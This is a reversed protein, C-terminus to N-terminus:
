GVRLCKLMFLHNNWDSKEVYEYYRSTCRQWINWKKLNPLKAGDPLVEHATWPYVQNAFSICTRISNLTLSTRVLPVLIIFIQIEYHGFKSLDDNNVPQVLFYHSFWFKDNSYYHLTASISTLPLAKKGSVAIKLLILSIKWRLFPM